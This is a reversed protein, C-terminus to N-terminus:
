FFVRVTHDRRTTPPSQINWLLQILPGIGIREKQEKKQKENLEEDGILVDIAQTPISLKVKQAEVVKKKKMGRMQREM